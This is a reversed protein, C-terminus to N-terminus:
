DNAFGGTMFEVLRYSLIDRHFDDGLAPVTLKKLLLNRCIGVREQGNAIQPISMTPAKGLAGPPNMNRKTAISVNVFYISAIGITFMVYSPATLNRYLIM